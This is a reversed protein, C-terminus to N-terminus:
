ARIEMHGSHSANGLAPGVNEVRPHHAVSGLASSSEGETERQVGQCTLFQCEQSRAALIFYQGPSILGTHQLAPFFLIQRLM